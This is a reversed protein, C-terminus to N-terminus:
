WGTGTWNKQPDYHKLYNWLWDKQEETIDEGCAAFFGEAKEKETAKKSVMQPLVINLYQVINSFTKAEFLVSMIRARDMALARDQETVPEGPKWNGRYRHARYIKRVKKNPVLDKAM